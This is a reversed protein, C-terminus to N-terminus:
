LFIITMIWCVLLAVMPIRFGHKLVLISIDTQLSYELMVKRAYDYLGAPPAKYKAKAVPKPLDPSKPVAPAAKFNAGTAKAINLQAPPSVAAASVPANPTAIGPIIPILKVTEEPAMQLM